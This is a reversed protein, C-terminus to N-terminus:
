VNGGGEPSGTGQEMSKIWETISEERFYLCRGIKVTPLGKQKRWNYITKQDVQFRAILEDLTILDLAKM